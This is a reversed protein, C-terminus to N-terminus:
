TIVADLHVTAVAPSPQVEADYAAQGPDDLLSLRVDHVRHEKV